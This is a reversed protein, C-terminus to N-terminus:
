PQVVKHDNDFDDQSTLLQFREHCDGYEDDLEELMVDDKRTTCLYVGGGISLMITVCVAIHWGFMMTAIMVAEHDNENWKVAGPLPNYLIFGVQWFWTGQVFFLLIRVFVPLPSNKWWMELLIVAITAYLVYVLLTHIVVDLLTRDHLHFLFLMTEVVVAFIGFVYESGRPLLPSRRDVLIDVIGSLGYFFFMTAHQGNGIHDFRGGHHATIVEGM